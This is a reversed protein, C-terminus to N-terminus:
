PLCGGKKEGAKSSRFGVNGECASAAMYHAGGEYAEDSEGAGAGAGGPEGVWAAGGRLQLQIAM